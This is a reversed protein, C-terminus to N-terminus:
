MSLVAAADGIHWGHRSASGAPVELAYQAAKNPTFTKPYSEPSVNSAIDVIHGDSGIWIIDIAFHMDPMWFAYRDPHDFIFLMGKGEPLTPRGSLGQRQEAPTRVVEVALTTGDIAVSGRLLAPSPSQAAKPLFVLVPLLALVVLIGSWPLLKKTASKWTTGVM